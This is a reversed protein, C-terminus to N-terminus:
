EVGAPGLDFGCHALAQVNGRTGHSQADGGPL